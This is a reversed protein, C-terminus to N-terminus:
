RERFFLYLLELLSPAFLIPAWPSVGTPGWGIELLSWQRPVVSIVSSTGSSVGVEQLLFSKSCQVSDLHDNSVCAWIQEAARCMYVLRCLSGHRYCYIFHSCACKDHKMDITVHEDLLNEVCVDLREMMLNRQMSELVLLRPWPCGPQGVTPLCSVWDLLSTFAAKDTFIVALPWIWHM